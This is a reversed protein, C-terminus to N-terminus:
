QRLGYLQPKRCNTRIYLELAMYIGWHEAWPTCPFWQIGEKIKTGAKGVEVIADDTWDFSALADAASVRCPRGNGGAPTTCRGGIGGGDEELASRAVGRITPM